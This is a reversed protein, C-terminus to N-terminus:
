KKEFSTGEELWILVTESEKEFSYIITEGMPLLLSLSYWDEEIEEVVEVRLGANEYGKIQLKQSVEVGEKLLIVDEETFRWGIYESVGDMSNWTGHIWEPPNMVPEKKDSSNDDSTCSFLSVIAISLILFYPRM